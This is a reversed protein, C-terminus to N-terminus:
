PVGSKACQKSQERARERAMPRPGPDSFRLGVGRRKRGSVLSRAHDDHLVVRRHISEFCARFHDVTEDLAADRVECAFRVDACGPALDDGRLVHHADFHEGRGSRLGARPEGHDSSHDLSKKGRLNRRVVDDNPVPLKGVQAARPEGFDRLL